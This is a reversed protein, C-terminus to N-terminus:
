GARLVVDIAIAAQRLITGGRHLAPLLRVGVVLLREGGIGLRPRRQLRCLALEVDDVRLLLLRQGASAPAIASRSM